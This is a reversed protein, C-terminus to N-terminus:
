AKTVRLDAAAAANVSAADSNNLPDPDAETQATM